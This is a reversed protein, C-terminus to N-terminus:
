RVVIPEGAWPTVREISRDRYADPLEETMDLVAGLRGFGVCFAIWSFLEVLEGDDYHRRLEAFMADDISLHDNAFRDAYALAAREADTLDPAEMPKELSCVLAEDVGADVASRYRIAMCSRCQNHFAIRIRVLEILRRPLKANALITQIFTRYALAIDPRQAWIRLVGLKTPDALAAPGLFAKLDPSFASPDLPKLRAM